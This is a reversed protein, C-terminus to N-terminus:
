KEAPKALARRFARPSCSFEARFARSFYNQDLFGVQESVEFVSLDTEELLEAARLLRVRLLYHKPGMGIAERFLHSFRSESLGADAAYRSLPVNEAFDRHMARVAREVRSNGNETLAARRGVRCLLELLYANCFEGSFPRGLRFEEVLRDFTEGISRGAGVPFVRKGSLGLDALLAACGTGSFHLYYSVSPIASVFRYRQPERPLFLIVNGGDVRTETEGETLFCAGEAIYLIHFDSRGQPRFSGVDKGAIHQCGCANVHLYETSVKDTSPHFAM